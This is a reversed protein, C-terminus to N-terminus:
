LSQFLGPVHNPKLPQLVQVYLVKSLAPQEPVLICSGRQAWVTPRSGPDLGLCATPMFFHGLIWGGPFQPKTTLIGAQLGPCSAPDSPSYSM